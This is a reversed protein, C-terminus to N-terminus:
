ALWVTSILTSQQNDSRLQALHQCSDSAKTPDSSWYYSHVRHNALHRSDSGYQMLGFSTRLCNITPSKPKPIPLPIKDLWGGSRASSWTADCMTISLSSIGMTTEIMAGHVFTMALIQQTTTHGCNTKSSALPRDSQSFIFCDAYEIFAPLKGLQVHQYIM